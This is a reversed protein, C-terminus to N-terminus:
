RVCVSLYTLDRECAIVQHTGLAGRELLERAGIAFDTPIFHNMTLDTNGRAVPRKPMAPRFYALGQTPLRKLM